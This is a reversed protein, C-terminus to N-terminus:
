LIRSIRSDIVAVTSPESIDLVQALSLRRNRWISEAWKKMREGEEKRNQQVSLAEGYGGRALAVIDSREVQLGENEMSPAKLLEIARRYLGEQILLSSSREVKAKHGFMIGLSTLIVGVKPHKSGFLGEAKTLAKTLMEEADQFNRSHTALQGLACLAGLSVEKLSMNAASFSYSDESFDETLSSDLARQYFEKALLFKGCTHLFEGHSLAVNGSIGKDDMLKDNESGIFGSQAAELNGSVLEVLGKIARARILMHDNADEHDGLVQLSRDAVTSSTADQGMELHLAALAEFAAVKVASSSHSSDIVEQLKERAGSLDGRESLLTSMGLLVVGAANDQLNSERHFNALGQDLVLLAQGYSEDSKKSRAHNLAYNVLQLAVPVGNSGSSSFRHITLKAPPCSVRSLSSAVRRALVRFM